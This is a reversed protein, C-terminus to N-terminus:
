GEGEIAINAFKRKEAQKDRWYKRDCTVCRRHPKKGGRMRLNDGSLPHGNKCHTRQAYIGSPSDSRLTNEKATVAELHDPRVCSLVKCLHDLEHKDPIEGVFLRYSLRHASVRMSQGGPRLSLYGYGRTKGGTWLWCSDTKQVHKWFRSEDQNVYFVMKTMSDLSM